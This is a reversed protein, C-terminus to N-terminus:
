ILFIAAHGPKWMTTSEPVLELDSLPADIGDVRGQRMRFYIAIDPQWHCRTCPEGWSKQRQGSWVVPLDLALAM